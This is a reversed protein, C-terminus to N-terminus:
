IGSLLLIMYYKDKESKSWKIHYDEPEDMNSCIANNWKKIASSYEITYIYWMKNIQEETSPCEPQKWTKAITFLASILLLTCVNKLNHNEGSTYGPTPNSSWITARDKTKLSGGWVTKWLPQVFKCEWRWRLLAGKRWVMELMQQKYVKQHHGNQSTHSSVMTTKIQMERIILSPSCRKM